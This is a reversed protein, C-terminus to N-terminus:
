KLVLLDLDNCHVKTKNVGLGVFDGLWEAEKGAWSPMRKKNTQCSRGSGAQIGMHEQTHLITLMCSGHSRADLCKTTLIEKTVCPTM